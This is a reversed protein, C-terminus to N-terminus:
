QFRKVHEDLNNFFLFSLIPYILTPGLSFLEFLEIENWQTKIWGGKAEKPEKKSKKIRKIKPRENIIKSSKKKHEPTGKQVIELYKPQEV